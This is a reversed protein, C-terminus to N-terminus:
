ARKSSPIVSQKVSKVKQQFREQELLPIDLNASIWQKENHDVYNLHLHRVMIEQLLRRTVLNGEMKKWLETLKQKPIKKTFEIEIQVEILKAVESGIEESIQEYFNTLDKHGVSLATKRIVNLSM